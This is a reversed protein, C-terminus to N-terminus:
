KGSENQQLNRDKKGHRHRRNPKSKKSSESNKPSLKTPTPIDNSTVPPGISEVDFSKSSKTKSSSNHKLGKDQISKRSDASIFTVITAAESKESPDLDV